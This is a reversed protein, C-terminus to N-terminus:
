GIKIFLQTEPYSMSEASIKMLCFNAKPWGRDACSRRLEEHIANLKETTLSRASSLRARRSAGWLEESTTM